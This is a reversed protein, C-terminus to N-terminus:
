YPYIWCAMLFLAGLLYLRLNRAGHAAILSNVYNLPDANYAITSLGGGSLSNVVGM